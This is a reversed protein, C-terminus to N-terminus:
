ALYQLVQKQFACPKFHHDAVLLCKKENEEEGIGCGSQGMRGMGGAREGGWNPCIELHWCFSPGWGCVIPLAQQTENKNWISQFVLCLFPETQLWVREFLYTLTNSQTIETINASLKMHYECMLGTLKSFDVCIALQAQFLCTYDQFSSNLGTALVSEKLMKDFDRNYCRDKETKEM